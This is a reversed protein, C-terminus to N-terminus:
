LREATFAFCRHHSCRVRGLERVHLLRLVDETRKELGEIDIKYVRQNNEIKV